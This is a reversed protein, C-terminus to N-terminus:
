QDIFMSKISTQNQIVRLVSLPDHCNLCGTGLAPHVIKGDFTAKDHCGYCLDPQGTSLGLRNASTKAHPTKRSEIAWHCSSCGKGVAPHVVKWSVLKRDCRKCDRSVSIAGTETVLLITVWIALIKTMWVNSIYRCRLSTMCM